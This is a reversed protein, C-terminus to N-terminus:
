LNKLLYDTRAHAVAMVRTLSLTLGLSFWWYIEYLDMGFLGLVLRLIIFLIVSDCVATLFKLDNYHGIGIPNLRGEGRKLAVAELLSCDYLLENRNRFLQKIIFYVFSGFIIIGQVGLNTAVELYLNHTDQSRGFIDKRISPFAGVGVGLPHTAFIALADETIQIRASKSGEGAKIAGTRDDTDSSTYISEFRSLYEQPVFSFMGLFFVAGLFIFKMKKKSRFIFFLTMGILGVYGTRSGSFIIINFAFVVQILLISKVWRNSIPFLYMIFPLTGLAMGAFSNPHGYLDTSGHLRMVGQNQWVMSGTIKGVLGEQGMKFCALMFAALFFRLGKPSKAFSAIFLAMFAFKIVRDIFVSWSTPFDYSFLTMILLLGFFMLVSLVLPPRSRTKTKRYTVLAFPVLLSVVIFEIHIAGLWRIRSGVQLYWIIVYSCFILLVPLSVHPYKPYNVRESEQNSMKQRM